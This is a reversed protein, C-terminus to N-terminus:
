SWVAKSLILSLRQSLFLLFEGADEQRVIPWGQLLEQWEPISPLDVKIPYLPVATIAMALRPDWDATLTPSHLLLGLLASFVANMYCQIANQNLLCACKQLLEAETLSLLTSSVSSADGTHGIHQTKRSRASADLGVVGLLLPERVHSVAGVNANRGSESPEDSDLDALSNHALNDTIAESSELAGIRRRSHQLLTRRPDEHSCRTYSNTRATSTDNTSSSCGLGTRLVVALREARLRLSSRWGESDLTRGSTCGIHGHDDKADPCAIVGESAESRGNGTELSQEGRSLQSCNGQVRRPGYTSSLRLRPQSVTVDGAATACAQSSQDITPRFLTSSRSQLGESSATVDTQGQEQGESSRAQQQQATGGDHRCRPDRQKGRIRRRIQRTECPASVARGMSSSTRRDRTSILVEARGEAGHSATRQSAHESPPCGPNDVSLPFPVGAIFRQLLVMCNSRVHTRMNDARDMKSHCYPCSHRVDINSLDAKKYRAKGLAYEQPHARSLHSSLSRTLKIWRGCLVCHCSLDADVHHKPLPAPRGALDLLHQRRLAMHPCQGREIHSRLGSWWLFSRHCWACVPDQTHNDISPEYTAVIREWACRNHHQHSRLHQYSTFSRQCGSCVYRADIVQLSDKPPSAEQVDQQSLVKYCLRDKPTSSLLSLLQQFSADARLNPFCRLLGALMTKWWSTALKKHVTISHELTSSSCVQVSLTLFMRRLLQCCSVQIRFVPDQARLRRMLRENSELTIHVPSRAIRRLCRIVDKKLLLSGKESLGAGSLGYAYVPIIMSHFLRLKLALSLPMRWWQHLMAFARRGRQLRHHLISDEGKKWSLLVGLYEIEEKWPLTIESSVKFRRVGDRVLLKKSLLRRASRGVLRCLVQTKEVNVELGFKELFSLFFLITSCAREVDGPKDIGFCLLLDDAYATLLNLWDVEANAARLDEILAHVYIVWLLPALTCGQRVGRSTKVTRYLEGLKLEYSPELYWAGIVGLLDSALGLGHLKKLLLSRDVKDFANSLDLSIVICGSCDPSEIGSRSWVAPIQTYGALRRRESIFSQARFIAMEADRGPLYAFQPHQYLLPRAISLVQQAVWRLFAKGLCCQIVLPRYHRVDKGSRGPKPLLTLFGNRFQKPIGTQPFAQITKDICGQVLPSHLAIKWIGGLPQNPPVAKLLPIRHFANGLDQCTPATRWDWDNVELLKAKSDVNFLQAFFNAFMDAEEELTNAGVLKCRVGLSSRSSKPALKRILPYFSFSHRNGASEAEDCLQKSGLDELLVVLM